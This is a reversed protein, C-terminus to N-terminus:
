QPEPTETCRLRRARATHLTDLDTSFFTFRTATKVLCPEYGLKGPKEKSSVAHLIQKAIDLKNVDRKKKLDDMCLCLLASGSQSQTDEEWKGVM